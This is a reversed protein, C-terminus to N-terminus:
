SNSQLKSIDYPETPEVKYYELLFKMIKGFVPTASSEAWQVDKPNVIKVLIVFQPDDTPAYGVFSGITLGEEYGKSSSSAVQATGTKGGVLYGPVDARKGHDKVVVSRLM